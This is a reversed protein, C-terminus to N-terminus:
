LINANPKTVVQIGIGTEIFCYINQGYRGIFGTVKFFAELHQFVPRMIYGLEILIDVALTGDDQFFAPQALAGIVTNESFYIRMQEFTGFICLPQRYADVTNDFVERYVVNATKIFVPVTRVQHGHNHYTINIRGLRFFHNFLM